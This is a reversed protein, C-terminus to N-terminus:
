KPTDDDSVDIEDRDKFSSNLVTRQCCFPSRTAVSVTGGGGCSCKGGWVARYRGVTAGCGCLCYEGCTGGMLAGRAGGVCVRM